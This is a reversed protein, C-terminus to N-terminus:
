ATVLPLDLNRREVEHRIRIPSFLNSLKFGAYALGFGFAALTACYILQAWLQGADGYLIGRVGDFAVGVTKQWQEQQAADGALAGYRDVGNWGAAHMGSAFIGVSVVGWMGSIGFISIAGVPDDIQLRDWFPISMELLGGAVAGIVFAAWPEVFACPATIAAFGALLGRCIAVAVGKRHRWWQLGAAACGGAVVAVLSNFTVLRVTPDIGNGWQASIASILEPLMLVVAGVIGLRGYRPVLPIPKGDVYRGHRPGVVIAGALGIIGGLAFVVGSGAFDVAGHGFHWNLGLQTLWGGGWIWNAFFGFPLAVWLGYICFNRWSWREALAGIPITAATVLFALFTFFITMVSPDDAGRLFFCRAGALGWRYGGTLQGSDDKLADIGIGQSLVSTGPGLSSYWGPAM